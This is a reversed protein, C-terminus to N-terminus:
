HIIKKIEQMYLVCKDRVVKTNQTLHLLPCASRFYVIRSQKYFLHSFKITQNVDSITDMGPTIVDTKVDAYFFGGSSLIVFKSLQATIISSLLFM